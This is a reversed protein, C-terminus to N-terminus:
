PDRGQFSVSGKSADMVGLELVESLRWLGSSVILSSQLESTLGYCFFFLSLSLVYGSQPVHPNQGGGLRMDGLGPPFHSHYSDIQFGLQM